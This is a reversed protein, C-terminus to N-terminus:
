DGTEAVIQAGCGPCFLNSDEEYPDEWEMHCASCQDQFTRIVYIGNVDQSRHDRLFEEFNKIASELSKCEEETNRAHRVEWDNFTIEAHVETLVHKLKRAKKTETEM